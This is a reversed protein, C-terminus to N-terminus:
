PHNDGRVKALARLLAEVADPDFQTTSCRVIEAVATAHSLAKRYARNSTMADYTDAVALVRAIVPIEEGQLAMPYGTGDWREHHQLVGPILPNLFTIPELIDRGYAPHAKIDEYEADTLKGPNNLNTHCGLKGIDHMLATQAILEVDEDPLGLEQAAMRSYESVRDSHGATYKDMAEIARALGAITDRFTEQLNMYLRANEISAAARACLLRILKRKGETFRRNWSYLNVMGIVNSRVRLPVSMFSVLGPPPRFFFREVAAMPGVIPIDRDSERILLPIDLEGVDHETRPADRRAMLDIGTRQNDVFVTACDPSLEKAVTDLLSDLVQDLSLSSALAESMEYLSLTEKLRINESILRQKELGRRVIHVVEEVKFPKLVYDYAGKKMAEIATEVTGFGTMIVVLVSDHDKRIHELLDLGGMRPMKLDSIVMDYQNHALEDLADVGDRAMGVAFGEMTLFDALIERIVKEDDVVLLRPTEDKYANRETLPEIM